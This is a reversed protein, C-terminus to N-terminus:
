GGRPGAAQGTQQKGYRRDIYDLYLRARQANFDRPHEATLRTFTERAKEIQEMHLYTQGLLLLIDPENGAGPYSELVGRLRLATAKPKNRGLYFRAVYLESDILKRLCEQRQKRADKTYKSGPYKVLFQDFEKLAERTATQDKEIAPPSLFWEDPVQKYYCECIKYAAYGNEVMDHTPHFRTFQRYADIAEIFRGRAQQTDAVRLEGLPAYRSFPFRTKVFTFYKIAEVFNEDKLEQLGKEYNQKATLQYSVPKGKADDGCGAALAAVALLGYLLAHIARRNM